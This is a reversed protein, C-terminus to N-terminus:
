GARRSRRSTGRIGGGGWGGEGHAGRREQGGSRECGDQEAASRPRARGIGSGGRLSRAGWLARRRRGHSGGREHLARQGGAEGALHVVDQVIRRERRQEPADVHGVGGGALREVGAVGVERQQRRAVELEDGGGSGEVREARLVAELGGEVEGAVLRLDVRQAAVEHEDAAAVRREPAARERQGAHGRGVAVVGERGPGLGERALAHAADFSAEDAVVVHEVVLRVGRAPVEVVHHAGLPRLRGAPEAVAVVQGHHVHLARPRSLRRADGHLGLAKGLDVAGEGRAGAPAAVAREVGLALHAGLLDSTEPRM